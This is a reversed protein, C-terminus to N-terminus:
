VQKLEYGKVYLVEVTGKIGAKGNVTAKAAAKLTASAVLKVIEITGSAEFARTLDGGLEFGGGLEFSVEIDKKGIILTGVFKLTPDAPDAKAKDITATAKYTDPLTRGLTQLPVKYTKAQLTLDEVVLAPVNLNLEFTIPRIDYLYVSLHTARGEHTVTWTAVENTTMADLYIGGPPTNKDFYITASFTADVPQKVTEGLWESTVSVNWQRAGIIDNAVKEEIKRRQPIPMREAINLQGQHNENQLSQQQQQTQPVPPPASGSGGGTGQGTGGGSSPTVAAGVSGYKAQIERARNAAEAISISNDSLKKLLDAVEQKGSMDRFINPTGLLTLAAALGTPDPAASPNVINVLSQPFPTPAATVQQPQPTIPTIPNIDPAQISIPHEDWKWFRTNDIEESINCHGLKGEAFVGRTPLTILRESKSSTLELVTQRDDESMTALKDAAWQRRVPDNGSLAAAVDNVESKQRALPYAVYSGFVELPMPDVYDGMVQGGGGWPAVEMEIAISTPDTGLLIIRNYYDKNRNVHDTLRNIQHREEQMLSKEPTRNAPPLAAPIQPPRKIWTFSQSSPETNRFYLSVDRAPDPPNGLPETLPVIVGNAGFASIIIKDIRWEDSGWKEFQLGVIDAWRISVYRGASYSFVKVFIFHWDTEDFPQGSNLDHVSGGHGLLDGKYVYHLEHKKEEIGEGVTILYGVVVSSSRDRLGDNTKLGIEFMEFQLDGEWFQPTWADSPTINHLLQHERISEQKELADFGVKLTPDLLNPELLFRHGILTAADFTAIRGPKQLLVASRRRVWEVTVRYHRLVEYYLITLTHSHNYNSFTRTQISEKEEQRAQVVVTSNIERQSSSAQSFSDNLRQVNEAVLDRSGTSTATSGGLSWTDGVAAGLGIVGLNVGGSGGGSHAKGGMFSSGRQVERLGAKVTETIIRDRHTQHLIDETLKTTEDRKTLSDWSWDIVALKVTEGPALPLSYLIEGLSHGLSFWSVKYDDVYAARFGDPLDFDRPVDTLRVVQRLVFEQLALNAPLLEECGDAGLLSKPSAAFSAPSLRWDTLSPNQLARPGMNILAPPLTHWIMSLRAVVADAAFRAQRLVDFKEPNGYLYVWIAINLEADANARRKEIAEALMVQVDTRLRRLDFSVYGVHDTTLVGLPDAWVTDTNEVEATLRLGFEPALRRLGAVFQPKLNAAPIDALNLQRTSDLAQKFVQRFLDHVRNPDTILQDRSADDVTEAIAELVASEIRNRAAPDVGDPNIVFIAARIPERFRENIPPTPIIKPVAVEAYIPLRQVPRGTEPDTVFISLHSPLSTIQHAMNEKTLLGLPFEAYISLNITFLFVTTRSVMLICRAM